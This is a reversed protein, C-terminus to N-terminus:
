RSTMEVFSLSEESDNCSQDTHSINISFLFLKSSPVEIDKELADVDWHCEMINLSHGKCVAKIEQPIGGSTLLTKEQLEFIRYRIRCLVRRPSCLIYYEPFTVNISM